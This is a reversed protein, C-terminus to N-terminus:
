IYEKKPFKIQSVLIGGLILVCGIYGRSSMSEGLMIGGGIAGFVSEMSLIIAAHSPKADKQAVVQLTYAIGVSLLGGYLIPILASSLASVTIHEFILASILSLVSCTAFQICSLKLPDVKKSFHDITLIHFAWFVAGILELLDGFSISFNENISLLYLGVVALVVGVWASKEIKQKLFVGILPVIVMYLGTIFGAKGATTYNIGVQQFTAALYLMSGVLAGSIITKRQTMEINNENSGENKKRKDFYFILPVLSLSGLAFRIGNFTFAGVYQAGIRQAVFAFGWIAATILLLINARLIKSEM